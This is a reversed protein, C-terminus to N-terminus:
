RKAREPSQSSAPRSSRRRKGSGGEVEQDLRRFAQTWGDFRCVARWECGDCATRAGLRYPSVAVDGALLQGGLMRVRERVGALLAGFDGPERGDGQKSPTGDKRLKFAFQGSAGGAAGSDLVAGADVRLRGRHRHPSVETGKEGRGESRSRARGGDGMLGVYFMGALEPRSGVGVESWDLVDALALAYAALQLDIGAGLLREDMLRPRLKYDLVVYWGGGEGDWMVDGRDVKGRIRL